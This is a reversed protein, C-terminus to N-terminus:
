ARGFFDEDSVGDEPLLRFRTRCGKVYCPKVDKQNPVPYSFTGDEFTCEFLIHSGKGRSPVESVGFSRLIRRLDNLKLRHRGM